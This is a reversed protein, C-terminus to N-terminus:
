NAEELRAEIVVLAAQAQVQDGLAVLVDTVTGDEAAVIPHEMKMAEIAALTQGKTVQEGIEVHLAM